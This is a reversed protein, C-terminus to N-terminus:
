GGSGIGCQRIAAPGAAKPYSRRPSTDRGVYDSWSNRFRVRADPAAGTCRWARSVLWFYINPMEPLKAASTAEWVLDDILQELTRKRDHTRLDLDLYPLVRSRIGELQDGTEVYFHIRRSAQELELYEPHEQLFRNLKKLNSREKTLKAAARKFELLAVLKLGTLLVDGFVPDLPTQQTQHVALDPAFSARQRAGMKLGLAYLFNGIVINEYIPV